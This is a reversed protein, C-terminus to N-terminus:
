AVRTRLRDLVSGQVVEDAGEPDAILELDHLQQDLESQVAPHALEWAYPSVEAPRRHPWGKDGAARVAAADFGRWGTWAAFDVCGHLFCGGAYFAAMIRHDEADAPDDHPREHFDPSVYFEALTAAVRRRADPEGALGAWVADLVPRWTGLYAPREREPRREEERLLREAVAVAFAARQQGRLRELMRRATARVDLFYAVGLRDLETRTADERALYRTM